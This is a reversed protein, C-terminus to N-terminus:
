SRSSEAAAPFFTAKNISCSLVRIKTGTSRPYSPKFRTAALLIVSLRRWIRDIARGPGHDPPGCQATPATGLWARPASWGHSTFLHRSRQQGLEIGSQAREGYLYSANMARARLIGLARIM